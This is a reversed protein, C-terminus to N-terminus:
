EWKRPYNENEASVHHFLKEDETAVNILNQLRSLLEEKHKLKAELQKIHERQIREGEKFKHLQINLFHKFPQLTELQARAFTEVTVRNRQVQKTVLHAVAVNEVLLNQIVSSFQQTVLNSPALNESLTLLSEHRKHACEDITKMMEAFFSENWNLLNAFGRQMQASKQDIELSIDHSIRSIELETSDNQYWSSSTLPFIHKDAPPSLETANNGMQSLLPQTHTSGASGNAQIRSEALSTIAPRTPAPLAAMSFGGEPLAVPNGITVRVESGKALVTLDHIIMVCMEPRGLKKVMSTFLHNMRVISYVSLEGSTLKDNLHRALLAYKNLHCGDSVLLQYRESSGADTIKRSGLIQMVPEEVTGGCKITALAGGTLQWTM